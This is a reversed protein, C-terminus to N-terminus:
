RTVIERFASRLQEENEAGPTSIRLVKGAAFAPGVLAVSTMLIAAGALLMRRGFKPANTNM